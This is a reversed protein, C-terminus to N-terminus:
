GAQRALRRLGMSQRRYSHLRFEREFCSFRGHFFCEQVECCAGYQTRQARGIGHVGGESLREERLAVADDVVVHELGDVLGVERCVLRPGRALRRRREGRVLALHAGGEDLRQAAKGLPTRQVDGDRSAHRAVAVRHLLEIKLALGAVMHRRVEEQRVGRLERPLTGADHHRAPVGGVALRRVAVLAARELGRLGAHHREAVVGDVLSLPPLAAVARGEPVARRVVVHPAARLQEAPVRRAEARPVAHAREVHERRTRLHVGRAEAHHAMGAAARHGRPDHREVVADRAGRRAAVEGGEAGHALLAARLVGLLEHEAFEREAEVVEAVDHQARRAGRQEARRM